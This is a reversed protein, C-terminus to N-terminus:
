TWSESDASEDVLDPVTAAPTCIVTLDPVHPLASLSPYTAIGQVAERKVNVPYVVGGYGHGILNRLLIHGVKGPLDSAGVVAIRHPRFIRQLNRITL